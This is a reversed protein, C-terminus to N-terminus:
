SHTLENRTPTLVDVNWVCAGLKEAERLNATMAKFTPDTRQILEVREIAFIPKLFQWGPETDTVYVPAGGYVEKSLALALLAASTTKGSGQGGFWAVKIPVPTTTNLLQLNRQSPDITSM